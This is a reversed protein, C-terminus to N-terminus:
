LIRTGRAPTRDCHGPSSCLGTDIGIGLGNAGADVEAWVLYRTSSTNTISCVQTICCLTPHLLAPDRCRIRVDGIRM